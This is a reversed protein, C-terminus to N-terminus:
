KPTSMKRHIRYPVTSVDIAISVPDMMDPMAIPTAHGDPYIPIIRPKRPPHLVSGVVPYLMSGGFFFLGLLSTVNELVVFIFLSDLNTTISFIM